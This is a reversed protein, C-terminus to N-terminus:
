RKDGIGNYKKLVKCYSKDLSKYEDDIMIKGDIVRGIENGRDIDFVCQYANLDHTIVTMNNCALCEIKESNGQKPGFTGCREIKLNEKYLEYYEPFLILETGNLIIFYKDKIKDFIKKLEKSSFNGDYKIYCHKCNINCKSCLMIIVNKGQYEYMGIVERVIMIVNTSKNKINSM